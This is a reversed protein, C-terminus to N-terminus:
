PAFSKFILTANTGGFGFSNSMAYTLDPLSKSCKHAHDADESLLVHQYHRPKDVLADPIDPQTLTRTAPIRKDVLAYISMAAEIAGAAGLLHGTSAKTSSVHVPYRRQGLPAFVEQIALLEIMDGIPTGTAHANVYDICDASLQADNLAMRMSRAAGDGNPSPTTIHYGDGSMGYGCLEALVRGEQVFGRRIAHDLSELVLVGAGEGM